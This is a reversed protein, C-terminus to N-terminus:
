TMQISWIKHQFQSNYNNGKGGRENLTIMRLELSIHYIPRLRINVHCMGVLKRWMTVWVCLHPQVFLVDVCWGWLICYFAGRASYQYNSCMDGGSVIWRSSVLIVSSEWNMLYISFVCIKLNYWFFFYVVILSWTCLM